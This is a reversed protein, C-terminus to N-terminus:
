PRDGLGLLRLLLPEPPSWPDAAGAGQELYPTLDVELLVGDVPWAALRAVLADAEARRGQHAHSLALGLLGRPFPEPHEALPALAAEAGPYDQQSLLGLGLAERFASDGESRSALQAMLDQAQTAHGAGHAIAAAAAYALAFNPDREAAQALARLAKRVQGRRFLLRGQQFLPGAGNKPDYGIEVPHRTQAPPAWIGLGKEILVALEAPGQPPFGPYSGELQRERTVYLSTPFTIVGFGGFAEYSPDFLPPWPLDWARYDVEVATREAGALGEREANIPLVVLGQPRYTRDLDALARLIEPSRPNWTAWFVLLAGKPGMLEAISRPEGDATYVTPNPAQDGPGLARLAWAPGGLALCLFLAVAARRRSM